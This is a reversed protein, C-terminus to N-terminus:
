RLVGGGKKIERIQKLHLGHHMALVWYWEKANMKGFWPHQFRVQTNRNVINKNLHAFDITILKKFQEMTKEYSILDHPKVAATDAKGDPVVNKSLETVLLFMQTTVIVLHELTMKISWYRSSDELGQQPPILVRETLQQESLGQVENLIKQNIRNFREESTEWPTKAAVFPKVFYQLFFKQLIPIGAGPPALKPEYKLGATSDKQIM